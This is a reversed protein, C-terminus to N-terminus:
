PFIAVMTACIVLALTPEKVWIIILPAIAVVPTVQLLIAYPFLSAEILRSQVFVFAAATGLVVALAFALMTIRLTVWLSGSLLAWDEVLTRAIASPASV